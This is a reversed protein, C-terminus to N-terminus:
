ATTWPPLPVGAGSGNLTARESKCFVWNGGIISNGVPRWFSNFPPFCLQSFTSSAASGLSLLSLPSRSSFCVKLLYDSLDMPIVLNKIQCELWFWLQFGTSFNIDHQNCCPDSMASGQSGTSFQVSAVFLWIDTGKCREKLWLSKISSIKNINYICKAADFFTISCPIELFFLLFGFVILLYKLIFLKDIFCSSVNKDVNVSSCLATSIVNSDIILACFSSM